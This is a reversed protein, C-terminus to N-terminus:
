LLGTFYNAHKCILLSLYLFAIHSSWPGVAVSHCLEPKFGPLRSGSDVSVVMIIITM